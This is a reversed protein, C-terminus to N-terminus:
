ALGDRDELIRTNDPSWMTIEGTEKNYNSKNLIHVLRAMTIAYERDLGFSEYIELVKATREAMPVDTLMKAAKAPGVKPIGPINDTRDGMLWQMHFLLDAEDELVIRHEGKDPNWHRGPIQLLDKDITVIVHDGIEGRTSVIGLVDDGETGTIRLWPHKELETYCENLFEPKPKDKRNAKYEPYLNYRFSPKSTLAIVCEDCGPGSMWGAVTEHVANAADDASSAISAARYAIIDGDLLAIM